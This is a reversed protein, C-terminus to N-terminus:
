IHILSLAYAKEASGDDYAYYDRFTQVHVLSDNDPVGIQTTLNAAGVEDEWLSVHFVAFSDSLAPNFLDTFIQLDDVYDTGFLGQVSNNVVAGAAPAYSNVNGLVDVRQVKLGIDEQSNSTSGFSRHLTPVSTATYVSPAVEFHPWPMATWPYTLFSTPPTVFAVEEFQPATTMADEDVRVYDLHWTDVNGELSGYSRFRFQFDNHFFEPADIHIVEPHFLTDDDIGETSWVWRWPDGEAVSTRFEVVLSDEGADAGNAIGGSQYWFSLAVSDGSTYGEGLLLRRSTLTDAYGTPNVPTLAYPDGSANLGDLTACGVTPPQYALTMTRRVPSPEWRKLNVPGEEHAMSPWAFDDVFPLAIPFFM